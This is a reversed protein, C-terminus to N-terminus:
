RLTTIYAKSLVFRQEYAYPFLKTNADCYIVLSSSSRRTWKCILINGNVFWERDWTNSETSSFYFFVLINNNDVATTM